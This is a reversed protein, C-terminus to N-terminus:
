RDGPRRNDRRGGSRGRDPRRRKPKDTVPAEAPPGYILHLWDPHELEHTRQTMRGFIELLTGTLDRMRMERTRLKDRYRHALQVVVWAVDRAIPAFAELFRLQELTFGDDLLSQVTRVLWADDADYRGAQRPRLVGWAELTELTAKEVGTKRLFSKRDIPDFRAIPTQTPDNRIPPLDKFRGIAELKDLNADDTGFSALAAKVHGLNYGIQQMRRILRLMRLHRLSYAARTRSIKRPSPLVGEKVYFNITASSLGTEKALAGIWMEGERLESM